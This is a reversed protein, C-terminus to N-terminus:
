ELSTGTEFARLLRAATGEEFSRTEAWLRGGYESPAYELMMECGEGEDLFDEHVQGDDFVLLLEGLQQPTLNRVDRHDSGDETVITLTVETLDADSATDTTSKDTATAM